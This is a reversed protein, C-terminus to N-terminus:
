KKQVKKMESCTIFLTAPIIFCAGYWTSTEPIQNFLLYSVVTSFLLELYRYPAVATADVLTFAKLLFFLILNACIGSLLLLLIDQLEPAQWYVIARPLSLITTVIASYFLMSLITEKIIYKKNIIDLISFSTAALILFLVELSLSQGWPNVIVVIGIFGIITAIWRYSPIKEDLFFIALILVFIPITFSIVTATPIAINKGLAYTWLTIAVFLLFGRIIHILVHCTKISHLGQVIIVPLLAVASFFCRFFSIQADHLKSCTYKTITDLTISMIISCLFWVIGIIYQNYSKNM